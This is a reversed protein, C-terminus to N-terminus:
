WIEWISIRVEGSNIGKDPYIIDIKYVSFEEQRKIKSVSRFYKILMAHVSSFFLLITRCNELCEIM